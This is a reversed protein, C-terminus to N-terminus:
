FVQEEERGTCKKIRGASKGSGDGYFGSGAPTGRGANGCWMGHAAASGSHDSVMKEHVRM